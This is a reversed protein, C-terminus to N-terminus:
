KYINKMRRLSDMDVASEMEEWTDVPSLKCHRRWKPYSPLGHDRGRQINLSVLDLGCPKGVKPKDQQFLKETIETSFFRDSKEIPTNMAARLAEDLGKEGYLSYPNFLM